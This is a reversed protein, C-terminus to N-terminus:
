GEDVYFVQTLPKRGPSDVIKKEANSLENYTRYGNEKKYSAWVRETAGEYDSYAFRNLTNLWSGGVKVPRLSEWKKGDYLHIDPRLIAVEPHKKFNLYMVDHYAGESDKKNLNRDYLDGRNGDETYEAFTKYPDRDKNFKWVTNKPLFPELKDYNDNFPLKSIISRGDAKPELVFEAFQKKEEDNFITKQIKKPVYQLKGSTVVKFQERLELEKMGEHNHELISKIKDLEEQMGAKDEPSMSIKKMKEYAFNLYSPTVNPSEGLSDMYKEDMRHLFGLNVDLSEKGEPLKEYRTSSNIYDMNEMYRNYRQLADNYNIIIQNASMPKRVSMPVYGKAPYGMTRRIAATVYGRGM